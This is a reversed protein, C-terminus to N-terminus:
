SKKSLTRLFILVALFLPTGVGSAFLFWDARDILALFVFLYVFDRQSLTHEVKALLGIVGRPAASDGGVDQLGKFFPGDDPKKAAREASHRYVLAAAAAGSFAAVLGFLLMLASGTRKWLGVGLCSFLLFHVVNDGWFDLVGGWRSEQFRLRALEGDCGDLLTHLWITLAGACIGAYSGAALILAGIAGIASSFVTMHNPQIKTDLLRRTVALSIHRDFNKAMFSDTDKRAEELLWAAAHKKDTDKSLRYYSGFPIAVADFGVHHFSRALTIQVVGRNSPDQYSTPGKHVTSLIRKLTKLRLLHDGSITAYPPRCTEPQSDEGGRSAWIIELNKPWRLADLAKGTLPYTSMWVKKVGARELTFLQREIVRLGGIKEFLLFRHDVSLVARTLPGNQVAPAGPDEKLAEERKLSKTKEEYDSIPDPPRVPQGRLEPRSDAAPTLVLADSMSEPPDQDSERAPLTDQFIELPEDDDQKLVGVPFFPRSIKGQILGHVQRSVCIGGPRAADRLRAAATVCDGFVNKNEILIDGIDIGCRVMIKHPASKKQNHDSFLDQAAAAAAVAKVASDFTMLYTDGITLVVSGSYKKVAVDWIEAYRRVLDMATKESNHLLRKFGHIDSYLVAALQRVAM